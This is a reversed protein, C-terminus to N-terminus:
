GENRTTPPTPDDARDRGAGSPPHLLPQNRPAENPAADPARGLESRITEGAEELHLRVGHGDLDHALREILATATLDLKQQGTLRLAVVDIQRGDRRATALEEDIQESLSEANAYFVMGKVSLDLQNDPRETAAQADREVEIRITRYVYYVLSGLMALLLGALVDFLLVAITTLLGVNFEIHNFRRLRWVTTVKIHNAVAHIVLAGLVAEPLDTLVGSFWLITALAMIAAVLSSYSSRAGARENLSTASLSGAGVLGGFFGSAVNGVGFAMMDSNLDIKEGRRNALSQEVSAAESLGVLVVGFSAAFIALWNSSSLDPWSISPLGSPIKGVTAVDDTSIGFLAVAAIGAGVVVLGGPIRPAFREIGFLLALAVLGILMTLPKIDGVHAIMQWVKEIANGSIHELGLLKPLQSITIFLALGFMFGVHIPLSIFRVVFGLRLIGAFVYIAGVCISVAGVVVEPKGGVSAVIGGVTAAAASTSSAVLLPSTGFLAYLGVVFIVTYIGAQAPVGALGAYAMAEPVVLGWLTIGAILDPWWTSTFTALSPNLGFRPVSFKPTPM